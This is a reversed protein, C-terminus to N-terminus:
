SEDDMHKLIARKHLTLLIEEQQFYFILATHWLVMNKSGNYSMITLM